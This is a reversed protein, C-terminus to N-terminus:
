AKVAAPYHRYLFQLSHYSAATLVLTGASVRNVETGMAKRDVPLAENSLGARHNPQSLFLDHLAEGNPCEVLIM